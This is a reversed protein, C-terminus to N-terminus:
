TFLLWSKIMTSAYRFLNKHLIEKKVSNQTLPQIFNDKSFSETLTAEIVNHLGGDDMLKAISKEVETM